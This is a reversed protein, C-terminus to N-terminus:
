SVPTALMREYLRGDQTFIGALIRHEERTITALVVAEGLLGGSLHPDIIMRDVLVRVPVVHDITSDQGLAIMPNFTTYTPVCFGSWRAIVAELLRRIELDHAEEPDSTGPPIVDRRNAIRALAEASAVLQSRRESEARSAVVSLTGCTRDRGICRGL